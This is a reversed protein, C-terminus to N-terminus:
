KKHLHAKLTTFRVFKGIERAQATHPYREKKSIVKLAHKHLRSTSNVELPNAPGNSAAIPIPQAQPVANQNSSQATDIQSEKVM